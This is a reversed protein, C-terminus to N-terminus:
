LNTNWPFRNLHTRCWVAAEVNPKKPFVKPISSLVYPYSIISVPYQGWLMSKAIIESFGDFEVMRLGGQMTKVEENMQEKPVRGHVIINQKLTNWPKTNGYLHFEVHPNEYALKEIKDWGYLLFDDGSVSAYMKPKDSYQYSIKYNDINGMFSPCVYSQIGFKGLAEAEVENEVWSECHKNIWNALVKPDLKLGDARDELWYGSSFHRIDSGAWLIYKDGRHKWLAYFDPLGYLGFFVTPDDQNIYETTGWVDQHRGELDGLSPAIRIQM